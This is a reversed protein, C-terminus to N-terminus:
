RKSEVCSVKYDQHLEKLGLNKKKGRRIQPERGCFPCPKLTDIKM